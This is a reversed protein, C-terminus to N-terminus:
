QEITGHGLSLAVSALPHLDDQLTVARPTDPARGWEVVRGGPQILRGGFVQDRADLTSRTPHLVFQGRARAAVAFAAM